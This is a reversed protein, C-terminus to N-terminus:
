PLRRKVMGRGWFDKEGILMGLMAKRNVQDLNFLMGRGILRESELDIISFTPTQHQIFWNLNESVKELSTISFAEDGLPITVELDNEWEATQVADEPSFPSLYCKTGTLKKYHPM